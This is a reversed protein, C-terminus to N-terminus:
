CTSDCEKGVGREESRIAYAVWGVPTGWYAGNQFQNYPVIGKEWATTNDFDEGKIIHRINGKYALTGNQYARALHGAAALAEEGELLGTYIALATAWVDPQNSIGTSALVM